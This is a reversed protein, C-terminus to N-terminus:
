GLKLELFSSGVFSKDSMCLPLVRYLFCFNEGRHFQDLLFLQFFLFVSYKIFSRIMIYLLPKMEVEGIYRAENKVKPKNPWVLSLLM